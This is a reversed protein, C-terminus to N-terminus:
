VHNNPNASSPLAKVAAESVFEVHLEDSSAKLRTLGKEIDKFKVKGAKGYDWADFLMDYKEQLNARRLTIVANAADFMYQKNNAM